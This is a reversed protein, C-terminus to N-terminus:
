QAGQRSKARARLLTRARERRERRERRRDRRDRHSAVAPDPQPPDAGKGASAEAGAGASAGAGAGASTGAGAEAGAGASTGAGAEAGASAGPLPPATSHYSHGTPTTVELIHRQGPLPGPRPRSSWGPTEKTHNCAECLGAGNSHRTTGNHHWPIIHDAHRIPADCYPTRCTQDRITLFRRLGPPFLRAKSEVATLEGPGPATFLRRLWVNLATNEGNGPNALVERAWGAPVIGYGPLRAPESDAQFLTRDTMVLQIEIGSIGGPTGTTREVLADAMLQGRTRPDGGARLSDANRSLAAHVAVGETVPLLATLYCMTDPAPRLSVHREAAAHSARGTVSRPDRRYAATRAAAVLARDGAGDFTGTDPALEEDVACRGEACLCATERVLLTARWENLQGAELAALTHPMETVLAKALGLLRSGKAPSERRALAIQAGVGAGLEAAPMGADSQERRQLLDFAVSLRAQRAALASKQDELSRIEAILWAADPVPVDSGFAM